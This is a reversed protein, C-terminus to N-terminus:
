CLEIHVLPRVVEERVYRESTCDNQSLVFLEVSDVATTARATVAAISAWTVLTALTRRVSHVRGTTATSVWTTRILVTAGAQLLFSSVTAMLVLLRIVKTDAKPHGPGIANIVSNKLSLLRQFAGRVAGTRVPPTVVVPQVSARRVMLRTSVGVVMMSATLATM